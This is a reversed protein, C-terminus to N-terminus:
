NDPSGRSRCTSVCEKGGRRDEARRHVAGQLRDDAIAQPLETARRLEERRLLDPGPQLRAPRPLHLLLTREPADLAEIEHLHVIEQAPFAVQLRQLLPLPLSAQVIEADGSRVAAAVVLLDSSCVDSSWDSIRM